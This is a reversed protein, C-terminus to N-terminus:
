KQRIKALSSIPNLLWTFVNWRSIFLLIVLIVASYLLLWPWSSPILGKGFLLFLAYTAFAHYIFILLTHKGWQACKENCPTLRIVAVCMCSAVIIFLFRAILMMLVDGGHSYPYACCFVETMKVKQEIPIIMAISLLLILVAWITSMKKTYEKVEYQRTCYGAMFFPLFGLTRQFSLPTSIPIFGALLSIIVSLGIWILPSGKIWDSAIFIMVRWFVLSLLYWMVYYPTLWDGLSVSNGLLITCLRWIIQFVVYTEFIRLIGKLYRSRDKMASFRGSIFIFLPM